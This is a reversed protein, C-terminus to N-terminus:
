DAVTKSVKRPGSASCKGDLVEKGGFESIYEKTQIYICIYLKYLKYLKYKIYIYIYIYIFLICFLDIYQSRGGMKSIQGSRIEKM